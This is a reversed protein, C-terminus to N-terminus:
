RRSKQKISQDIARYWSQGVKEWTYNKAVAIAQKSLTELTEPSKMLSKILQELTEVDEPEYAILAGAEAWDKIVDTSIAAITPVGRSLAELVVNPFGEFRSSSILITSSDLLESVQHTPVSFSVKKVGLSLLYSLYDSNNQSGVIELRWENKALNLREWAGLLIDFGKQPEVRGISVIKRSSRDFSKSNTIWSTPIQNPTVIASVKWNEFVWNAFGDTQVSCTALRKYIFPRALRAILHPKYVHPDPNVRESVIVPIRSMALSIAMISGVLAEMGIVVDPKLVQIQQRFKIVNFYKGLRGFRYGIIPLRFGNHHFFNGLNIRTIREDLKYFDGDFNWTALTVKHGDNLFSEALRIAAREAGGQQLSNVVITIQM